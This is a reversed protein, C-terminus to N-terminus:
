QIVKCSGLVLTCFWTKFSNCQRIICSEHIAESITCCIATKTHHLATSAEQIKFSCKFMRPFSPQTNHQQPETTSIMWAGLASATVDLSSNSSFSDSGPSVTMKKAKALCGLYYAIPSFLLEPPCEQLWCALQVVCSAVDTANHSIVACKLTAKKQPWDLACRHLLWATILM